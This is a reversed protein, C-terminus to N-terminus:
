TDNHQTDSFRTDYKYNDQTDNFRTHYKCNNDQTDNM